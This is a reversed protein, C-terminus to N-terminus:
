ILYAMFLFASALSQKLKYTCYLGLHMEEAMDMLFSPMQLLESDLKVINAIGCLIVIKIGLRKLYDQFSIFLLCMISKLKLM